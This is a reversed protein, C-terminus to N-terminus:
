MSEVGRLTVNADCIGDSNEGGSVDSGCLQMTIFAIGIFDGVEREKQSSYRTLSRIKRRAHACTENQQQRKTTSRKKKKKEKKKVHKVAVKRGPLVLFFKGSFDVSKIPTRYAIGYTSADNRNAYVFCVRGRRYRTEFALNSLFIFFFPLHGPFLPM